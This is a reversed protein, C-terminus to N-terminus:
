GHNLSSVIMTGIGFVDTYELGTVASGDGFGLRFSTDLDVATTSQSPEYLRHGVCNVNCYPGPVFTDSSGTDFDVSFAQPPTGIAITGAWLENQYDVLAFAAYERKMM